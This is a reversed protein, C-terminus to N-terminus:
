KSTRSTRPQRSITCRRVTTWNTWCLSRFACHHEAVGCAKFGGPSYPAISVDLIRRVKYEPHSDLLQTVVHSAIFGAGGTILISRPMYQDGGTRVSGNTLASGNAGAAHGNALRDSVMRDTAAYKSAFHIDLIGSAPGCAVQNCPNSASASRLDGALIPSQYDVVLEM